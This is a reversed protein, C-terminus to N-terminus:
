EIRERERRVTGRGTALDAGFHLADISMLREYENATDWECITGDAMQRAGGRATRMMRDAEREDDWAKCRLSSLAANRRRDYTRYSYSIAERCKHCTYWEGPQLWEGCNHCAAPASM